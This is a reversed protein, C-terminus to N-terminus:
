QIASSRSNVRPEGSYLIHCRNSFHLIRLFLFRCQLFPPRLPRVHRVHRVRRVPPSTHPTGIASLISLTTPECLLSRLRTFLIGSEAHQADTCRYAGRWHLPEALCFVATLRFMRRSAAAVRRDPSCGSSQRLELSATRGFLIGGDPPVDAAFRSGSAQRACARRNACSWRRM